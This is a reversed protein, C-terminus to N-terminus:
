AKEVHLIPNLLTGRRKYQTFNTYRFPDSNSYPFSILLDPIKLFDCVNIQNPANAYKM